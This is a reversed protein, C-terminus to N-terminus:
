DAMCCGAHTLVCATIHTKSTQGCMPAEPHLWMAPHSSPADYVASLAAHAHAYMHMGANCRREGKRPRWAPAWQRGALPAGAGFPAGVGVGVGRRVQQGLAAVAGRQVEESKGVRAQLVQVRACAHPFLAAAPNPCRRPARLQMTCPQRKEM